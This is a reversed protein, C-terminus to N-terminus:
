NSNILVIVRLDRFHARHILLQIFKRLNLPEFQSTATCMCMRIVKFFSRVGFIYSADNGDYYVNNFCGSNLVAELIRNFESGNTRVLCNLEM